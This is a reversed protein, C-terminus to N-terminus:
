PKTRLTCDSLGTLTRSCPVVEADILMAFDALDKVPQGDPRALAAFNFGDVTKAGARYLQDKWRYAAAWGEDDAHILIRIHKDAFFSLAEPHITQGAGTLCVPAVREVSFDVIGQSEYWAVLLAACFDPQGECLMILPCEGIEPAGIPWSAQSGPLSKAKAGGIGRWPQGDLRRAQANRRASDTIVWAPWNDGDDYVMGQWLLGRQSLMELGVYSAWGRLRTIAGMEGVTLKRLSPLRLSPQASKTAQLAVSAGCFHNDNREHTGVLARIRKRHAEGAPGPYLICAFQGNPYIALHEGNRDSGAEACAPCRAVHKSGRKRLNELLSLVLSM